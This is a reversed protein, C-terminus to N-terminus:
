ANPTDFELMATGVCDNFCAFVISVAGRPPIWRHNLADGPNLALNPKLLDRQM